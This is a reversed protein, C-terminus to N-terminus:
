GTPVSNRLVGNLSCQLLIDRLGYLHVIQGFAVLIHFIQHSAGLLDFRRPWFREPFRSVYATTGVEFVAVHFIPALGSAALLFFVLARWPGSHAGDMHPDLAVRFVLAACFMTMSIYTVQLFPSGYLGFYTISICTTSIAMIIGLYDLKLFAAAIKESHANAAHFAASFLLCGATGVVYMQIAMIDFFPADFLLPSAWYEVVLILAAFYM